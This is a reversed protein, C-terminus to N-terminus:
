KIIEWTETLKPYKNKAKDIEEVTLHIEEWKEITPLVWATWKDPVYERRQKIVCNKTDEFVKGNIVKYIVNKDSENEKYAIVLVSDKLRVVGKHNVIDYYNASEDSLEVKNRKVTLVTDSNLTDIVYATSDIQTIMQILAFDKGTVETDLKDLRVYSVVTLAIVITAFFISGIWIRANGSTRNKGFICSLVIFILVGAILFTYM